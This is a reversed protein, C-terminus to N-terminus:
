AGPESPTPVAAPRNLPTIRRRLWRTGFWGILLLPLWVPTWIALVIILSIVNQGLEVLETWARKATYAPSWSDSVTPEPPIYKSRITLTILSLAANEKLYKQRGKIVEIQQEYDSLSNSVEIAETVTEAKVLLERLRAATAELNRLRSENDVYEATVDEGSIDRRLIEIGDGELGRVAADFKDAPVRFTIALYASSSVDSTSDDTSVIYGGLRQVLLEVRQGTASLQEYAARAEVTATKVVLREGPALPANSTNGATSVGTGNDTRQAQSEADPAYGAAPEELAGSAVTAQPAQDRNVYSRQSRTAGGVLQAVIVLLVLAAIGGFIIQRRKM